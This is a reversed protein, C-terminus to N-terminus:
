FGETGKMLGACAAPTTYVSRTRVVWFDISNEGIEGVTVRPRVSDPRSYKFTQGRLIRRCDCVRFVFGSHAASASEGELAGHM